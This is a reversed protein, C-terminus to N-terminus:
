PREEPRLPLCIETRLAGPEASAPINRYIEYHPRDAPDRGSGPLWGRFLHDYAAQLGACPGEFRLVALRRAPATEITM